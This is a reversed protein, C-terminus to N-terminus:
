AGVDDPAGPEGIVRGEVRGHGGHQGAAQSPRDYELHLIADVHLLEGQGGNGAVTGRVRDGEAALAQVTRRHDDAPGGPDHRVVVHHLHFSRVVHRELVQGHVTGVPVVAGPACLHEVEVAEGAGVRRLVAREAVHAEHGVRDLVHVVPPPQDRLGGASQALLVDGEREAMELAPMLGKAPVGRRTLIVEQGNRVAVGRLAIPGERDQGHVVM